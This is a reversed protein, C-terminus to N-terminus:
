ICNIQKLVHQIFEEPLEMDYKEVYYIVDSRWAYKGDTMTYLEPIKSKKDILDTVIAPSVAEIKCNRMYAIIKEKERIPKNILDNISPYKNDKYVECTQGIVIM